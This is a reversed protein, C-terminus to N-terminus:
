PKINMDGNFSKLFVFNYKKLIYFFLFMPDNEMPVYHKWNKLRNYQITFKNNKTWEYNNNTIHMNYYYKLVIKVFAFIVKKNFTLPRYKGFKM